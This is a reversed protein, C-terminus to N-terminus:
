SDKGILLKLFFENLLFALDLLPRLLECSEINFRDYIPSLAFINVDSYIFSLALVLAEKSLPSTSDAIRAHLLPPVSFRRLEVKSSVGAAM